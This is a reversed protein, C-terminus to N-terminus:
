VHMKKNKPLEKEEQHLHGPMLNPRCVQAEYQYVSVGTSSTIGPSDPLQVELM